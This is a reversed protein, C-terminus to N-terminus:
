DVKFRIGGGPTRKVDPKRRLDQVILTKVYGSFNKLEKVHELLQQDIPNEMNFSVPKNKMTAM